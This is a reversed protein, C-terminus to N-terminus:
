KNAFLFARCMGIQQYEFGSWLSVGFAFPIGVSMLAPMEV